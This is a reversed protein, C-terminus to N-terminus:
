FLPRWTYFLAANLAQLAAFSCIWGIRHQPPAVAALALFAPFLVSSFRGASMLGGAALPPVITVVIFAAYALGFKRYVPWATFLVFLVGLANLVDYPENSVYELVGAGVIYGYKGAVLQTLGEYHRGWAAHGSLWALPSGTLRWIFVSYLLAGGVPMVAATLLRAIRAHSDATRLSRRSMTLPARRAIVALVLPVCLVFGNPRTLGAVFGFAGVKLAHNHRVHYFAGVCCLLFLSETYIAGYFIAFPYAALLWLAANTQDETLDERALRYLYALAAAFAALSAITGGVVFATFSKGLLLAALRVLMPFAPFFVINQQLSPNGPQFEYGQTAIGLYWAADWRLPLNLVETSFDHFPRAGPAYGIMVVALYGVFFIAARTAVVIVIATRVPTSTAWAAFRPLLYRYAPQQRLILHRVTAVGAAEFLLRYPSTLTLPIPGIHTRFGGTLGVTVGVLALLAAVVDAVRAWVPLPSAADPDLPAREIM